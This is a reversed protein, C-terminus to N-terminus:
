CSPIGEEAERNAYAEIAQLVNLFNEMTEKTIQGDKSIADAFRVANIKKQADIVHDQIGYNRRDEESILSEIVVASDADIKQLADYEAAPINKLMMFGSMYRLLLEKELEKCCKKGENDYDFLAVFRFGWGLLISCLHKINEAGTSPIIHIKSDDFDLKKIMTQLYIQDTIGEVIVNLKQPSLGPTLRIDMGLAAAIPSLTDLSNHQSYTSSYLSNQIFSFGDKETKTISRLCGFNKDIMYPSHTTYIIQSEAAKEILLQRLEDQANIHLYIGPEDMVYVIPREMGVRKMMDIYMKLYWRLGNSRESLTTTTEGSDIMINLTSGDIRFEMSLNETGRKYFARFGRMVEELKKNAQKEFMTRNSSTSNNIAKIIDDRAIGALEILSHFLDNPKNDLSTNQNSNNAYVHNIEDTFYANKLQRTSDHFFFVPMCSIISDIIHILKNTYQLANEKETEDVIRKEVSAKLSLATRRYNNLPISSFCKIDKAHKMVGPKENAAPYNGAELASYIDYSEVHESLIHAICGTLTYGNDESLTIESTSDGVIIKEADDSPQLKIVISIPQDLNRNRFVAKQLENTGDVLNIHGIIDVLNSKGSGNMGVITTVGPNVQLMNQQEGFSRFCSVTISQVRM